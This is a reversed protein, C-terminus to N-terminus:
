RSGPAAGSGPRRRPWVGSVGRDSQRNGCAILSAGEPPEYEGCKRDLVLQYLAAQVMPVASPLEELNILWRGTDDSPPLFSPPAWRTDSRTGFKCAQYLNEPAPFTWLGAAIPVPLPRFNSFEGWAARTVRFGCVEDKAYIADARYPRRGPCM